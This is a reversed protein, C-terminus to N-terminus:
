PVLVVRFGASYSTSYPGGYSRYASRCGQANERWGGGRIVRNSGTTAGTPNTQATTPYIDYWNSCWEWVNGHMDFLGYANGAYTGVTQTKGPYITVTNTGNNYPYAWDYNAQLNTLFDGTNFPTTTGARCAYEWQAETPLTGGIYTAYEAAGYWTVYIVPANEYGTVPVWQSGSYHLGWDNIGSSAYILAQTPYAGAVFLGNSGINKANLFAAYQTNTIEYKSMRFATLTVQYQAEDSNRNVETVPSGMMFTGAPIASTPIAAFNFNTTKSGTPVDPVSAIYTGSTATYLLQDGATYTMTTTTIPGAKSKQPASAEVKTNSLFKIVAQTAASTQSQLKASYSYGTGSLCIVYIGTPLSLKLSNYGLEFRTTLETVKRGDIAYATVQANGDQSTYFTMIFTGTNANQSIRIGGDGASLVDVATTQDTLTLTNGSVVTATTGKTLNQVEVSGVSTTVGTATFSITYNLTAYSQTTALLLLVVAFASRFITTKTKM